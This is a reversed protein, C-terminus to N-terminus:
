RTLGTLMRTRSAFSGVHIARAPCPAAAGPLHSGDHAFREDERRDRGGLAARLALQFAKGNMVPLVGPMGICIPCTSSNPPLGFQTSCGCFMKSTTNLQIHCELGIVAEHAM